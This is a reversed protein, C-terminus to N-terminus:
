LPQPLIAPMSSVAVFPVGSYVVESTRQLGLSVIHLLVDDYKMGRNILCAKPFNGYHNLLSPVLNAELFQPVENVDLRIDIRGYDQAGLATFVQLALRCVAEKLTGTQVPLFTETDASKVKGSLIRHGHQDVPAILELPMPINEGTLADKMIAVSFERGPLYSEVLADAQLNESLSLLKARLQSEDYVVSHEDIGVGGGRDVPKVFLPYDISKQGHPMHQAVTFYQATRLGHESVRQKSLGKDLELMHAHGNSGTYAISRQDLFDSVWIKNPDKTGLAPDSPVYKMGMFVLDPQKAVLVDLDARTNVTSVGVHKYYKSLVEVIGDCSVKSMSSLEVISSRVVQIRM